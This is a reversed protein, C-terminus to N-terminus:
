NETSAPNLPLNIKRIIVAYDCLVEVHLCINM